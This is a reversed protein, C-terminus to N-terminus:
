PVSLFVQAFPLASSWGGRKAVLPWVCPLSKALLTLRSVIPVRGVRCGTNVAQAAASRALAHCGQM